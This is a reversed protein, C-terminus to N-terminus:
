QNKENQLAQIQRLARIDEFDRERAATKKLRILDEISAISIPTDYITMRERREFAKEFNLTTDVLIDVMEAEKKPNYVTFVKLNKDKIWSKRMESRAFDELQVPLRPKWGLSRIGSILNKLNGVDMAVMIDLDGTRRDYGHLIVAMGGVVLYRIKRKHLEKFVLRYWNDM